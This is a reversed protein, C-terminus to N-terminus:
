SRPCWPSSVPQTLQVEAGGYRFWLGYEHTLTPSLPISLGRGWDAATWPLSQLTGWARGPVRTRVLM